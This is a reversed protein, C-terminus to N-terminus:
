DLVTDICDGRNCNHPASMEEEGHYRQSISGQPPMFRERTIYYAYGILIPSYSTDHIM